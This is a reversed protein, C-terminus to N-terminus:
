GNVVEKKYNQNILDRFDVDENQYTLLIFVLLDIIMLQIEFIGISKDKNEIFYKFEDINNEKGNIINDIKGLKDLLIDILDFYNDCKLEKIYKLGKDLNNLHTISVFVNEIKQNLFLNKISNEFINKYLKLFNEQKLTSLKNKNKLDYAVDKNILYMTLFVKLFTNFLFNYYEEIDVKDYDIYNKILKKMKRLKYYPSKHIFLSKDNNLKVQNIYVMAQISFMFIEELKLYESSIIDQVIGDNYVTAEIGFLDKKELKNVIDNIYNNLLMM